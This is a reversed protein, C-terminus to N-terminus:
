EGKGATLKELEAEVDLTRDHGAIRVLISDIGERLQKNELECMTDNLLNREIQTKLSDNQKIAEDREKKVRELETRLRLCDLCVPEMQQVEATITPIENITKPNTPGM